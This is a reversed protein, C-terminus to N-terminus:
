HLTHEENTVLDAFTHDSVGGLDRLLGDDFNDSVDTLRGIGDSSARLLDLELNHLKPADVLGDGDQWELNFVSGSSDGVLSGFITVSVGVFLGLFTSILLCNHLLIGTKVVPDNIQTYGGILGNESELGTNALKETFEQNGFIEDFDVRGLKDTSRGFTTGVDKLELVELLITAEGLGRLKVLLHSEAAVHLTDELDSWNETSFVRVGIAVQTFESAEIHLHLEFVM